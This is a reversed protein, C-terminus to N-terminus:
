RFLAASRAAQQAVAYLAFVLLLLLTLLPLVQTLQLPTRKWGVGLQEYRSPLDQAGAGLRRRRERYKDDLRGPLKYTVAFHCWFVARFPASLDGGRTVRLLAAPITAFGSVWVLAICFVEWTFGAGPRWGGRM